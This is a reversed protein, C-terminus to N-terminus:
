TSGLQNQQALMVPEKLENYKWIFGGATKNPGTLCAQINKRHIGNKEGAEVISEFSSIFVGDKTYQSVKRGNVKRSTESIKKITEKKKNIQTSDSPKNSMEKHRKKLANSIFDCTREFVDYIPEDDYDYIQIRMHIVGQTVLEVSTYDHELLTIVHSIKNERLFEFDRTLDLNGLWLNPLVQSM